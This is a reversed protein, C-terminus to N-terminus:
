FPLEEKKAGGMDEFRVQDPNQKKQPRDRLSSTVPEFRMHETDFWLRAYGRSGEKNKDILLRREGAGESKSILMIVDADQILQRSERLNDKSIANKNDGPTIQSLGVVTVHLAQAMTHLQISINTVMEARSRGEASLLQIYDVFVIDYNDALVCARIDDVTCGAAELFDLCIDGHREGEESVMAIEPAGLAKSKIRDFRVKASQAALRDFGTREDTELSFFGVRYGKVAFGHAWQLALATKGMSSDAGLIVLKGHPPCHVHRNIGDFGWDLYEFKDPQQQRDLFNSLGESYSVKRIAPRLATKDVQAFLRRADEASQASLVQAAISQLSRLKAENAVIQAYEAWNAATPTLTLLEAITAAATDPLRASVTVPDVPAGTLYLARIARYIENFDSRTIASADVRRLIEGILRPDILMSGILSQQAYECRTLGM